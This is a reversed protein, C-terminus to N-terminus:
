FRAVIFITIFLVGILISVRDKIAFVIPDDHMLGRHAKLWMWSIWLLMLPAAGWIIEPTRYLKIVNESNLYFALVLTAAYGSTVGFQQVLSADAIYYGRGHLKKVDGETHAQLEAYRKIFALSLFLFISFALLWFSLPISVAAAGAFIRLTYLIALTLCDILVLRKLGWSYACTLGFYVLLWPLFSGGVYYATAFSSFIIPPTLVAGIKIPIQGSAFPRSRKRPHARDNELDLLDNVIYVSSACLSFSLFALGLHIWLEGTIVQNAAFIPIFILLNKIWQHLRFVKVWTKLNNEAKEIVHEIETIVKVQQVLRSSGNVVVGQKSKEWVLLDVSSNGVYDFGNEGYKLTLANAKNRGALNQIGDSAIVEDFLKLHDAIMKAISMDTATCLVLKRGSNKQSQLWDILNQNFPLFSIDADIHSALKQKLIAKGRFLWFPIALVFYPKDRLLRIASEHLMDTHILTGDLDVVLPRINHSM